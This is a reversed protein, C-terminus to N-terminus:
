RSYIIQFKSLFLNSINEMPLISPSNIEFNKDFMNENSQIIHVHMTNVLSMLIIYMLVVFLNLSFKLKELM